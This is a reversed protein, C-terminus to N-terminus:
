KFIIFHTVLPAGSTTPVAIHPLPKQEISKGEGVVEMYTYVTSPSSSSSSHMTNLNTSLAAVVKGLDIASGGGVSLIGDCNNKKAIEVAAIADEVTPEGSVCYSATPGGMLSSLLGNYRVLGGKGTVLM